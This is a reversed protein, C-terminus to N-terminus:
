VKNIHPVEIGTKHMMNHLKTHASRTMKMTYKTLDSHDYIYHHYVIDQGGRKGYMGNNEGSHSESMKELTEPSHTKGYYSNDKGCHRGKMSKSQKARIEPTREYKGSKM